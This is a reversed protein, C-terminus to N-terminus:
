FDFMHKSQIYPVTTAAYIRYILYCTVEIYWISIAIVTSANLNSVKLTEIYCWVRTKLIYVQVNWFCIKIPRKTFDSTQPSNYDFRDSKSILLRPGQIMFKDPLTLTMFHVMYSLHHKEFPLRATQKGCHEAFDWSSSWLFAALNSLWDM